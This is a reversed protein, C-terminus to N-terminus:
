IASVQVATADVGRVDRVQQVVEKVHQVVDPNAVTGTLIV